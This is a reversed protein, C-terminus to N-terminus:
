PIKSIAEPNVGVFLLLPVSIAMFSATVLFTILLAVGVRYNPM